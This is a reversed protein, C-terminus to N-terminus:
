YICRHRPDYFAESGGKFAEVFAPLCEVPSLLICGLVGQEAEPSHPPLRDCVAGPAAARVPAKRATQGFLDANGHQSM